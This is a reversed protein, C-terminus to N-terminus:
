EVKLRTVTFTVLSRVTRLEGIEGRGLLEFVLPWQPHFRYMFAEM